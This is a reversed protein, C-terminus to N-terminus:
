TVNELFYPRLRTRDPWYYVRERTEQITLQHFSKPFLGDTTVFTRVTEKGGRESSPVEIETISSIHHSTFIDYSFLTACDHQKTCTVIWTPHGNAHITALEKAIGAPVRFLTEGHELVPLLLGAGGIVSLVLHAFYDMVEKAGFQDYDARVPYKAKIANVAETVEPADPDVINALIFGRLFSLYKEGFTTGYTNIPRAAYFNQM